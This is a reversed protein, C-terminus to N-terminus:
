DLHIISPHHKSAIADKDWRFVFSPSTILVSGRKLQDLSVYSQSFYGAGPEKSMGALRDGMGGKPPMWHIIDDVAKFQGRGQWGSERAGEVAAEAVPMETGILRVYAEHVLATPQLTQGPTEHALPWAALQRLEGYVLPLLQAAAQVDGRGAADLIQSVDAM